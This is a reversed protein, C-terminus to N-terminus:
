NLFFPLFCFLSNGPPRTTLIQHNWWPPGPHTGLQPVSIGCASLCLLFLVLDFCCCFIGMGEGAPGWLGTGAEGLVREGHDTSPKQSGTMNEGGVAMAAEEKHSTLLRSLGPILFGSGVGDWGWGWERKWFFSFCCSVRISSWKIISFLFFLFVFGPLQSPLLCPPLSNLDRM